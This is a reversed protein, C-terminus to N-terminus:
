PETGRGRLRAAYAAPLVVFQALCVATRWWTALGARLLNDYASAALLLLVILTVAGTLRAFDRVMGRAQRMASLSVGFAAAVYTVRALTIGFHTTRLPERVILFSALLGIILVPYAADLMPRRVRRALWLAGCVLVAVAVAVRSEETWVRADPMRFTALPPDTM